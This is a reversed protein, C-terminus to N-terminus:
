AIGPGELPSEVSGSRSRVLASREIRCSYLAERDREQQLLRAGLDAVSEALHIPQGRAPLQAGPIVLFDRFKRTERGQQGRTQPNM